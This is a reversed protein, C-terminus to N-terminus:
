KLVRHVFTDGDQWIVDLDLYMAAACSLDSESPKGPLLVAVRDVIDDKRAINVLYRYRHVQGIAPFLGDIRAKAEIILRQKEDFIDARLDKGMDRGVAYQTRPTYGLTAIYANVLAAELMQEDARAQAVTISPDALRTAALALEGRSRWCKRAYLELERGKLREHMARYVDAHRYQGGLAHFTQYLTRHGGDAATPWGLALVAEAVEALPAAQPDTPVARRYGETTLDHALVGSTELDIVALLVPEITSDHKISLTKVLHERTDDWNATGVTDLQQEIYRTARSVRHELTPGLPATM